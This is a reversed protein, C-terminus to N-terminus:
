PRSLPTVNRMKEEYRERLMARVARAGEIPDSPHSQFSESFLADLVAGGLIKRIEPMPASEIQAFAKVAQLKWIRRAQLKPM